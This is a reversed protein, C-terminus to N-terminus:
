AADAVEASRQIMRELTESSVVDRVTDNPNASVAHRQIQRILSAEAANTSRLRELDCIRIDGISRGDRVKYSDFVTRAIQQGVKAAARIDATSQPRAPPPVLVSAKEAISIQGGGSSKPEARGAGESQGSTAGPSQGAASFQKPAATKWQGQPTQIIAAGEGKPSSRVYGAFWKGAAERITADDFLQAILYPNAKVALIFRQQALQADSTAGAMQAAVAELTSARAGPAAKAQGISELGKLASM